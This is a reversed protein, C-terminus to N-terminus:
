VPWSLVILIHWMHRYKTLRLNLEGSFNRYTTSTKIQTELFYGSMKPSLMRLCLFTGTVIKFVSPPFFVLMQPCCLACGWFYRHLAVNKPIGIVLFCQSCHILQCHLIWKSAVAKCNSDYRALLCPEALGASLVPLDLEEGSKDTVCPMWLVTFRCSDGWRRRSEGAVSFYHLVLYFFIAQASNAPRKPKNEESKKVWTNKRHM